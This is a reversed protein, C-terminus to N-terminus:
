SSLVLRGARNLLHVRGNRQLTANGQSLGDPRPDFASSWSRVGGYRWLGLVIVVRRKEVFAFRCYHAYTPPRSESSFGTIIVQRTTALSVYLATHVPPRSANRVQNWDSACRSLTPQLHTAIQERLAAVGIPAATIAVLLPALILTAATIPNTHGDAISDHLARTWGLPRRWTIDLVRAWLGPVAAAVGLAFAVLHESSLITVDPRVSYAFLGVALCSLVISLKGVRSRGRRRWSVRAISGLWAASITSVGYDPSALSSDFAGAVIWRAAAIFVYVLLTAVVQGLIASWWFTRTGCAKLALTALVAFSLLSLVVPRDVLVASSILFWLKGEGVRAPSAALAEVWGPRTGGVSSVCVVAVLWVVALVRAGWRRVTVGELFVAERVYSGGPWGRLWGFVWGWM